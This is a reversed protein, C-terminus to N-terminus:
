TLLSKFAQVCETNLVQAHVLEKNDLHRLVVLIHILLKRNHERTDQVHIGTCLGNGLLACAYIHLGYLAPRFFRDVRDFFGEFVFFAVISNKREEKPENLKLLVCKREATLVSV